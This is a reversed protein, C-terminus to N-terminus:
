GAPAEALKQQVTALLPGRAPDATTRAHVPACLLALALIPALPKLATKM